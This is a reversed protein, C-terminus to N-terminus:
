LSGELRLEHQGRENASGLYQMQRRLSAPAEPKAIVQGLFQYSRDNNLQFSGALDVVGDVDEVSASVGSDQTSFEARYGGISERSLRPAVLDNVQVTGSAEVPLGDRLQIREFQLSAEGRLGRINFAEAFMQLPLSAALDSVTLTGLLGIGIDGEVFGSPPSGKIRYAVKGTFLHLPRMRWTVDRLYIGSAVAADAKGGWVTGHIGSMAIEPPVVWRYAIRAPFLIILAVVTTLAAVFLLGRKSNIM